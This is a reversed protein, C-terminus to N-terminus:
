QTKHVTDIYVDDVRYKLNCQASHEMGRGGTSRGTDLFIRRLKMLSGIWSCGRERQDKNTQCLHCLARVWRAEDLEGLPCVERTVAEVEMRFLRALTLFGKKM